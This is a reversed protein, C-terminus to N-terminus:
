CRADTLPFEAWVKGDLTRGGKADGGNKKATPDAPEPNSPLTGWQKFHFPIDQALAQDRLSRVADVDCPRAGVGSEGGAILWGIGDLNLNTLHGLLPEASIFHVSAPVKRLHDARDVYAGNEITTGAWINNSWTLKDALKAIRDPRKTLVLFTLEPLDNMVRFMKRLFALPVDKHFTDSMSNVFVTQGPGFSHPEDLCGTHCVVRDFGAAYKPQRAMKELRQTMRKAYCNACGASVPTCGTICNWTSGAWSISTGESM